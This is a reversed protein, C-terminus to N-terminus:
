FRFIKGLAKGLKKGLNEVAVVTPYGTPHVDSAKLVMKQQAFAASSAFATAAVFIGATVISTKIM